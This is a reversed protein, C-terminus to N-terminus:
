PTANLKEKKKERIEKFDIQALIISAFILASGIFEKTTLLEKLIIMSFILSFVSELSMIMSAITPNTYKQGYIQLTFAICGSFIAAFMISPLADVIRSFDITEFVLAFALSLLGCILFQIFALYVGNVKSAVRSIFTIQLAYGLASLLTFADGVELSFGDKVSILFFGVLSIVLYLWILKRVREKFIILCIIPVIVIYTASIFGTKSANKTLTIGLQQFTAGFFLFVGVLLSFIIVKKDYKTKNEVTEEEVKKNRTFIKSVFYFCMMVIGCVLFRLANYICPGVYDSGMKQSVFTLGWLIATILLLIPGLMKKKSSMKDGTIIISSKNKNTM